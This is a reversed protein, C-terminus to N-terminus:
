WKAIYQILRVIAYAWWVLLAWIAASTLWKKYKNVDKWDRTAFIYWLGCYIIVITLVTWVMYTAAYIVDQAISTASIDENQQNQIWIMKEYDFCWKWMGDLCGKNLNIWVDAASWWKNGNDGAPVIDGASIFSFMSLTSLMLGLSLIISLVRKM